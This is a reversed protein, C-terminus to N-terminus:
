QRNRGKQILSANAKFIEYAMLELLNEGGLFADGESGFHEIVYDYDEEERKSEDSCRWVGFDFDTTGGGFDFIAYMIKEDEDIRDFGYGKLATIAYAAPESVGQRVRFKSMIEENNLITEPLSKKLGATFSDLIKKKIDKKYTVPFSLIYNLYIGNSEHMNNIYLGLYYAYIELPNLDGQKLDAFCPLEWEKEIENQSKTQDKIKVKRSNDGCWQKIDYFFSYFNDSVSCSKLDNYATHSVRLDNVSTDPRGKKSQYDKLFKEIDIFEMITPNEYHHPAATKNLQGIGVRLLTIKKRGDQKSVITSKTGFDIGILGDFHIDEVPNRAVLPKSLSALVEDNKAALKEDTWLEWHGKNIDELCKRDYKELDARKKDCSLLDDIYIDVIEPTITLDSMVQKKVEIQIKTKDINFIKVLCDIENEKLDCIKRNNLLQVANKFVEDRLIEYKRSIISNKFDTIKVMGIQISDDDNWDAYIGNEICYSGERVGVWHCGDYTKSANISKVIEPPLTKFLVEATKFDPQIVTTGFYADKHKDDYKNQVAVAIQTKSNFYGQENNYSFLIWENDFFANEHIKYQEGALGRLSKYLEEHIVTNLINGRLIVENIQKTDM